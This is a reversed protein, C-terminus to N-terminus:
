KAHTKFANKLKRVDEYMDRLEYYEEDLTKSKERKGLEVGIVTLISSTENALKQYTKKDM